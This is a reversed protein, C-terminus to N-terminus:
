RRVERSMNPKTHNADWESQVYWFWIAGLFGFIAATLFGGMSCNFVVEKKAESSEGPGYISYAVIFVVGGVIPTVTAWLAAFLAPNM